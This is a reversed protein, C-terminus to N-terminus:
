FYFSRVGTSSKLCLHTRVSNQFENGTVADHAVNKKRGAYLLRSASAVLLSCLAQRLPARNPAVLFKESTWTWPQAGLAVIATESARRRM